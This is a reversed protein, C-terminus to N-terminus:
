CKTLSGTCLHPDGVSHRSIRKPLFRSQLLCLRKLLGCRFILWETSAWFESLVFLLDGDAPTLGGFLDFHLYYQMSDVSSRTQATDVCQYIWNLPTTEVWQSTITDDIVPPATLSASGNGGGVGVWM